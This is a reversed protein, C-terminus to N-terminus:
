RIVVADPVSRGGGWELGTSRARLSMQTSSGGDLNLADSCGLGRAFCLAWGRLSLAEDCAAVVVRGAGDIGLGTRRDWQEKFAGPRGASVLLPGCQVACEYRVGRGLAQSFESSSIIKAEGADQEGNKKVRFVSWRSGHPRSLLKGRSMRVGLSRGQADFFGGNVAALAHARARWAAAELPQDPAAVAVQLRAPAVRLAVVPARRAGDQWSFRRMEVGPAIRSWGGEALSASSTAAKLDAPAAQAQAKQQPPKLSCGALM